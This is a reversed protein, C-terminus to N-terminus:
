CESALPESNGVVMPRKSISLDAMGGKPSGKRTSRIVLTRNEWVLYGLLIEENVFTVLNIPRPITLLPQVTATEWVVVRPTYWFEGQGRTLFKSGDHNFEVADIYNPSCFRQQVKGIKLNWLIGLNGSGALLLNQDPSLKADRIEGETPFESLTEGTELNWIRVTEPGCSAVFIPHGENMLLINHDNSYKYKVLDIDRIVEGSQKNLLRVMGSSKLLVRGDPLLRASFNRTIFPYHRLSLGTKVDWLVASAQHKTLLHGADPDYDYVNDASALGRQQIWLENEDAQSNEAVIIVALLVICTTLARSRLSMDNKGKPNHNLVDEKVPSPWQPTRLM